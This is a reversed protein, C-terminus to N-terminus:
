FLSAIMDENEIIDSYARLAIAKCHNNFVVLVEEFADTFECSGYKDYLDYLDLYTNSGMVARIIERKLKKM